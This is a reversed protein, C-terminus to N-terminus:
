VIMIMAHFQRRRCCRYSFFVHLSAVCQWDKHVSFIECESEGEIRYGFSSFSICVYLGSVFVNLKLWFAYVLACGFLCVFLCVSCFLFYLSVCLSLLSFSFRPSAFCLSLPLVCRVILHKYEMHLDSLSAANSNNLEWVREYPDDHHHARTYIYYEYVVCCLVCM